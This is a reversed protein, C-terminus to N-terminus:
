RGTVAGRRRVRTERGEISKRGTSATNSGAEARSCLETLNSVASLPRGTNKATLPKSTRLWRSHRPCRLSFQSDTKWYKVRRFRPGKVRKAAIVFNHDTMSLREASRMAFRSCNTAFNLNAYTSTPEPDSAPTASNASASSEFAPAISPLSRGM